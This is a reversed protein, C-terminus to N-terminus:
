YGYEDDEIGYCGILYESDRMRREEENNRKRGAEERFNKAMFYKHWSMTIEMTRIKIKLLLSFARDRKWLNVVVVKDTKQNEKELEKQKQSSKAFLEMMGLQMELDQIDAEYDDM